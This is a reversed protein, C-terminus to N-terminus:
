GWKLRFLMADESDTFYYKIDWATKHEFMQIGTYSVCNYQAWLAAIWVTDCKLRVSYKKM